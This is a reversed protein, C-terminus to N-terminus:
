VVCSSSLVIIAERLLESSSFNAKTTCCAVECGTLVRHPLSYKCYYLRVGSSVCYGVVDSFTAGIWAEM